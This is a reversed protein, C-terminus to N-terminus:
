EKRVLYGPEVNCESLVLAMADKESAAKVEVRELATGNRDLLTVHGGAYVGHRTGLGFAIERGHETDVIHYVEAKGELLLLRDRQGSMLYVIGLTLFLLGLAALAAIWPSVDAYRLFFSRSDLHMSRATEYVKIFFTAVPKEPQKALSVKVEYAGPRTRSDTYLTGRWMAGGLWFGRHLNEFSVRISSSDSTYSLEDVGKLDDKLPGNVGTSEGPLLQFANPMSGFQAYLGDFLTLVLIACLFAGFKGTWNRWLSIQTPTM